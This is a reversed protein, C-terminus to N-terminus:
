ADERIAIYPDHGGSREDEDRAEPWRTDCKECAISNDAPFYNLRMRGCRPCPFPLNGFSLEGGCLSVGHAPEAIKQLIQLASAWARNTEQMAEACCGVRSGCKECPKGHEFMWKM